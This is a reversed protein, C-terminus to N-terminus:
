LALTRLNVPIKGVSLHNCYGEGGSRRCLRPNIVSVIYTFLYKPTCVSVVHLPIGWPM